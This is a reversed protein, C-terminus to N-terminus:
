SILKNNYIWVPKIDKILKKSVTSLVEWVKQIKEENSVTKYTHIGQKEYLRNIIEWEYFSYFNIINEENELYKYYGPDKAEQEALAMIDNFGYTREIFRKLSM